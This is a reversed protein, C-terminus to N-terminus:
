CTYRSTDADSGASAVTTSNKPPHIPADATIRESWDGGPTAASRHSDEGRGIHYKSSSGVPGPSVDKTTTM